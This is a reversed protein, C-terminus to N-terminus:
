AADPSEVHQERAAHEPEANKSDDWGVVVFGLLVLLGGLFAQVAAPRGLFADGTLAAPITMSLGITVVLPTTKLMALLFLYDSAFTISCNVLVAAIERAGHPLALTEVGLAQLLLGFPWYLGLTFLGIFGFFLQMDVRSESGIRVKLFVVYIAYFLASFLALADGFLAGLQAALSLGTDPSPSPAPATPPLPPKRSDSLSVLVVGLFSSLVAACKILTFKEVRFMAGIGLTFFGSTTTLITTSAVSTYGLAANVSWNAIFWLVSFTLALSATERTTLPADKDGPSPPSPSRQLPRLPSANDLADSVAVRTYLSRDVSRRKTQRIWKLVNARERVLYPILYLAFTSTSLYTLLFPKDYGSELLDQILYNSSTWLLVVIVLLGIGVLYNKQAATTAAAAAPDKSRSRPRGDM